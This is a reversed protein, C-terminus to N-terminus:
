TQNLFLRAFYRCCDFPSSFTTLSVFVSSGFSFGFDSVETEGETRSSIEEFGTEGDDALEEWEEPYEVSWFSVSFDFSSSISSAIPDGFVCDPGTRSCSAESFTLKPAKSSSLWVVEGVYIEAILEYSKCFTLEGGFNDSEDDSFPEECSTPLGNFWELGALATSVGTSGFISIMSDTETLSWNSIQNKVLFLSKPKFIVM